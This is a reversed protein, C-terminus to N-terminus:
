FCGVTKKSKGKRCQFAIELQRQPFRVATLCGRLKRRWLLGRQRQPQNEREVHFLSKCIGQHFRM